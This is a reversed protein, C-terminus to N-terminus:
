SDLAVIEKFTYGAEEADEYMLMTMMGGPSVGNNMLSFDSHDHFHWNGPNTGQILIDATSGPYVPITNMRVPLLLPSGDTCVHWFDHGHLHMFHPMLGANILRVRINEGRKIHLHDAMPYPKGNIMFFNPEIRKAKGTRSRHYPPIWGDEVAKVFTERDKFWGMMRGNMESMMKPSRNMYDMTQGMELMDNMQERLFETDVESLVLTYDRQYPFAARVVDEEPEIVLPGYLGAQIHMNTMNHCHYFHTGAPQARWVYSFTQGFGVPYQTGMPVGDMECPIQIGHWHITHFDHTKNSLNVKLWDGEKVRIEPGPLSGNFVYFHHEERPLLEIKSVTIELDFEHITDGPKPMERPYWRPTTEDPSFRHPWGPSPAGESTAARAPRGMMGAGAAGIMTALATLFNRRGKRDPKRM